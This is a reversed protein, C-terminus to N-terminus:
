SKSGEKRQPVVECATFRILVSVGEDTREPIILRPGKAEHPKIYKVNKKMGTVGLQIKKRNGNWLNQFHKM